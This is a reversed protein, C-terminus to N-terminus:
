KMHFRLLCASHKCILEVSTMKQEKKNKLPRLDFNESEEKQKKSMYDKNLDIISCAGGTIGDYDSCAWVPVTLVLCATFLITLLIDYLKEM